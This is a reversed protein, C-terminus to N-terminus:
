AAIGRALAGLMITLGGLGLSLPTRLRMWWGPAIGRDVLLRDIMLSAMVLVGLAVIRAPALAMLLAWAALAPMVALGWPSWGSVGARAAFGWWTGGLFSLILAAYVAGAHAALLQVGADLPLLLAAVSAVAPLLGAMGLWRAAAPLDQGQMDAGMGMGAARALRTVVDGGTGLRCVQRLGANPAYRPRCAGGRSTLRGHSDGNRGIVGTEGELLHQKGIEHRLLCRDIIETRRAAVVRDIVGIEAAQTRFRDGGAPGLASNEDAAGPNAHRNCRVPHGAHAAREHVVMQGRTKGTLVVVGVDNRKAATEDPELGRAIGKGGKKCGGEGTASV